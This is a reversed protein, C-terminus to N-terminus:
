VWARAERAEEDECVYVPVRFGSNRIVLIRDKPDLPAFGEEGVFAAVVDGTQFGDVRNDLPIPTANKRPDENGGERGGTMLRVVIIPVVVEVAIEGEAIDVVADGLSFVM